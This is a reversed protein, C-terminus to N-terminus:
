VTAAYEAFRQKLNAYGFGRNPRDAQVWELFGWMATVEDGNLQEEVFPVVIEPDYDTLTKVAHFMLTELRKTLKPRKTKPM